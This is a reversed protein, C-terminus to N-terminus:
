WSRGGAALLIRDTKFLSGTAVLRTGPALALRWRALSAPLREEGAVLVVGVGRQDAGLHKQADDAGVLPRRVMQLDQSQGVGVAAPLGQAQGVLVREVARSGGDTSRSADGAPGGGARQGGAILHEAITADQGDDGVGALGVPLAHLDVVQLDLLGVRIEDDGFVGRRPRIRNPHMISIRIVARTARNFLAQHLSIAKRNLPISLNVSDMSIPQIRGTFMRYVADNVVRSSFKQMYAFRTVEQISDCPMLAVKCLNSDGVDTMNHQVLSLSLRCCFQNLSVQNVEKSVFKPISKRVVEAIM